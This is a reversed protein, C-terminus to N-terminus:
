RSFGDSSSNVTLNCAHIHCLRDLFKSSSSVLCADIFSRIAEFEAQADRPISGPNKQHFNQGSFSFKSFCYKKSFFEACLNEGSATPADRLGGLSSGPLLNQNAHKGIALISGNHASAQKSLTTWSKCAKLPTRCSMQSPFRQSHHASQNM